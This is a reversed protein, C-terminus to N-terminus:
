TLLTLWTARENDATHIRKEATADSAAGRSIKQLKISTNTPRHRLTFRPLASSQDVSVAPPQSPNPKKDDLDDTMTDQQSEPSGDIIWVVDPVPGKTNNAPCVFVVPAKFRVEFRLEKWKFIREKYNHWKGIVRRDCNSFGTASAYYQQLVQMVSGLLAILAILLSVVAVYLEADPKGGDNNNSSSSM